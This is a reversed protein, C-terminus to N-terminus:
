SIDQRYDVGGDILGYGMISKRPPFGMRSEKKDGAKKQFHRWNNSDGQRQM